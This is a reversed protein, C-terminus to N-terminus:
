ATFWKPQMPLLIALWDMALPNNQM